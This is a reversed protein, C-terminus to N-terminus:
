LDNPNFSKPFFGYAEKFAYAYYDEPAIGPFREHFLMQTAERDCSLALKLYTLFNETDNKRLFCNAIYPVVFKGEENGYLTWVDELLDIAVDNYGANSYSLAINFLTEGKDPCEELANAFVDEAKKTEGAQLRIDGETMACRWRQERECYEWAKKIFYIAESHKNLRSQAFAM